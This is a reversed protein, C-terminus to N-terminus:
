VDHVRLTGRMGSKNISREGAVIEVIDILLEKHTETM